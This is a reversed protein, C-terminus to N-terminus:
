AAELWERVLYTPASWHDGGDLGPTNTGWSGGALLIAGRPLPLQHAFSGIVDLVPMNVGWIMSKTTSAPIGTPDLSVGVLSAGPTLTLNPFRNGVVASTIFTARVSLLEWRAGAPVTESLEAGLAPATGVVSRYYGGGVISSEIPSGPYGLHQMATIYGGLLCGLVLTAGTSGRVIQVMVYTQGVLPAGSVVILSCNLLYGIGVDVDFTNPMRDATPTFRPAFAVPTKAGEHLFRGDLQVVVGAQSNMIVVRLKDEGTFLFQFPTAFAKGGGIPVPTPAFVTELAM